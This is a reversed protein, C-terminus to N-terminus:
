RRMSHMPHPRCRGIEAGVGADIRDSVAVGSKIAIRRTTISDITLSLGRYGNIEQSAREPGRGTQPPYNYQRIRAKSPDFRTPLLRFLVVCFSVITM